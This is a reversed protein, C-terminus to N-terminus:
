NKAVLPIEFAGPVYAVDINEAPVEHRVLTDKAGDLLRNTIFDNFRSVVIAVKLDSGILNGEFNM